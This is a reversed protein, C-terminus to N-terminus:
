GSVHAATDVALRMCHNQQLCFSQAPAAPLGRSSWFDIPINVSSSCCPVFQLGRGVALSIRPNRRFTRRVHATPASSSFAALSTNRSRTSDQRKFLGPPRSKVQHLRATKMWGLLNHAPRPSWDYRWSRSKARSSQGRQQHADFLSWELSSIGKKAPWSRTTSRKM